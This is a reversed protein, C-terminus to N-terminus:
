MQQLIAQTFLCFPPTSHPPCELFLKIPANKWTITLLRRLCFYKKTGFLDLGGRWVGYDFVM